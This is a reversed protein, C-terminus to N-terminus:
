PATAAGGISEALLDVVSVLPWAWLPLILYLHSVLVRWVIGLTLLMHPQQMM